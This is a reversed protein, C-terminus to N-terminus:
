IRNSATLEPSRRVHLVLLAMLGTVVAGVVYFSNEIGVFEALGGMFVPAVISATRNATGRLGAAKGQTAPGATRLVTSIVMPQSVGNAGGRLAAAAMLLVFLGLLPTVCVALVSTLISGMILWYPKILRALWGAMLAGAAAAISASSLLLGIETGSFGIGGLYVVYFSSQVSSGTHSLMSAMVVLAIAPVSLLRFADVYDTPRPLVDRLRLRETPREAIEGNEDRVGPPLRWACLLVGLGWVSLGVFAWGSGLTDWVLGIAPPATLHGFRVSFSLRSTYTPSGHMHQGILIQAGLWGMSDALGAIMQLVLVAWIWPLVPFLLPVAIGVLSFFMMVRRGGLRDMLAGGHISLLLPLFHRAGLVMGVLLPSSELTAVWLPVVVSSMLFMSTSFMGIGYVAGQLLWPVRETESTSSAATLPDDCPGDARGTAPRFRVPV